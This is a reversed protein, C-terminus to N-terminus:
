VQAERMQTYHIMFKQDFEYMELNKVNINISYYFNSTEKFWKLILKKNM